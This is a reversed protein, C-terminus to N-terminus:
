GSPGWRLGRLVAGCAAMGKIGFGHDGAEFRALMIVLEGGAASNEDHSLRTLVGRAGTVHGIAIINM